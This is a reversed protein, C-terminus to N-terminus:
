QMIPVDWNWLYWFQCVELNFWIIAEIKGWLCVTKLPWFLNPLSEKCFIVNNYYIQTCIQMNLFTQVLVALCFYILKLAQCFGFFCFLFCRFSPPKSEWCLMLISSIGEFLLCAKIRKKFGNNKNIGVM